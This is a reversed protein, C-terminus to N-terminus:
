FPVPGIININQYGKYTELKAEIQVGCLTHGDDRLAELSDFEFGMAHLDKKLRQRKGKDAIGWLKDVTDRYNPGENVIMFGIKFFTGGNKSVIFEQTNVELVYQGDPPRLEGELPLGQFEEPTGYGSLDIM